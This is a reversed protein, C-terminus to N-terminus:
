ETPVTSSEETCSVCSEQAERCEHQAERCLRQYGDEGPHDNALDCLKSKVKCIDAMLGCLDECVPFSPDVTAAKRARELRLRELQVKYTGVNEGADPGEADVPRPGNGTTPTVTGPGASASGPGCGVSALLGLALGLGVRLALGASM